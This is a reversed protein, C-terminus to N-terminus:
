RTLSIGIGYRTSRKNYDLLSEGYGDWFQAYLCINKSIRRMFEAQINGYDKKLGKRAKVAFQAENGYLKITIEGNGYYDLIDPNNSVGEKFKIWGKLLVSITDFGLLSGEPRNYVLRPEWYARNWSRSDEGGKGNSEHEIGIQGLKLLRKGNIDLFIEPNHTSDKFPASEETISWLARFTYAFYLYDSPLHQRINIQFKAYLQKQDRPDPTGLQLMFYTPKYPNLKGKGESYNKGSEDVAVINAENVIDEAKAIAAILFVSLSVAIICRKGLRVGDKQKM